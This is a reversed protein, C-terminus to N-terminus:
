EPPKKIEYKKMNRWLTVRNIGMKRAAKSQNWGTEKLTNLVGDYDIKSAAPQSINKHYFNLAQKIERPFDDPLLFNSRTKIFSHEIANELERINGEWDYDM